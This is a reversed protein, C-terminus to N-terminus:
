SESCEGRRLDVLGEGEFGPQAKRATGDNCSHPSAPRALVLVGPNLEGVVEMCGGGAPRCAWPTPRWLSGGFLSAM